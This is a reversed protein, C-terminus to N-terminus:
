SMTNTFTIIDKIYENWNMKTTDIIQNELHSLSLAEKRKKQSNRFAKVAMDASGYLKIFNSEWNQSSLEQRRLSRMEFQSNDIDLLITKFGMESLEIDFSQLHKWPIGLAFYSLHFRELVIPPKKTCRLKALVKKLRRLHDSITITKDRLESFLEGLTEEESIILRQM